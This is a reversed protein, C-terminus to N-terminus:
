EKREMLKAMYEDARAGVVCCCYAVLGNFVVIVAIVVVILIKWMDLRAKQHLPVVGNAQLTM